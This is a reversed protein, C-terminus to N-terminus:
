RGSRQLTSCQFESAYDITSVYRGRHPMGFVLSEIGHAASENVLTELGPILSESGDLGFRKTNFKVKLFKQQCLWYLYLMNTEDAWGGVLENVLEDLQPKHAIL